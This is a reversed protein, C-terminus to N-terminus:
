WVCESYLQGTPHIETIQGARLAIEAAEVRDVFRGASTVFGQDEDVPWTESEYMFKLAAAHRGPRDVAYVRGQFSCAAKEITELGRRYAKERNIWFLPTGGLSSLKVALDDTIAFEGVLLDHFDELKMDLQMAAAVRAIGQERLIDLITDGPPSVRDPAYENEVDELPM